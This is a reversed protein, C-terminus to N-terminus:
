TREMGTVSHRPLCIARVSESVARGIRGARTGGTSSGPVRGPEDMDAAGPTDGAVHDGPGAAQLRGQAAGAGVLADPTGAAAPEFRLAYSIDAQQMTTTAALLAPRDYGICEILMEATRGHVGGGLPVPNGERRAGATIREARVMRPNYQPETARHFRDFLRPREAEVFGPGSDEVTLSIRRAASIPSRHPTPIGTM